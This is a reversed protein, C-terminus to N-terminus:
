DQPQLIKTQAFRPVGGLIKTCIQAGGRIKVLYFHMTVYRADRHIDHHLHFFHQTWSADACASYLDAIKRLIAYGRWVKRLDQYGGYFKQVFRPIRAGHLDDEGLALYQVTGLVAEMYIKLTSIFLYHRCMYIIKELLLFCLASQEPFFTRPYEEAGRGVM